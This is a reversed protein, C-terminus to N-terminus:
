LVGKFLTICEDYNLEKPNGQNYFYNAYVKVIHDLNKEQIGFQKNLQGPTIDLDKLLQELKM